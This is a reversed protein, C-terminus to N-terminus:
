SDIALRTGVGAPERGAVEYDSSPRPELGLPTQQHFALKWDGNRRVYASSVLSEYPEGTARRAHARYTLIAFGDSPQSFGKLEMQVDQWRPGEGVSAAVADRVLLGAQETFAVLCTRDVHQRYFDAGKTWFGRELELLQTETSM